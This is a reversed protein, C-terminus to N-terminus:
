VIWPAATGGEVPLGAAAWAVMGGSVNCADVGQAQLWAVAQASRSGVRCVVPLPRHAPLDPFRVPLDYLPIHVAGPAHGAAWEDDERVDLMPVDGVEHPQITPIDHM